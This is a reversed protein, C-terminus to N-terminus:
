MRHEEVRASIDSCRPTQKQRDARFSSLSRSSSCLTETMKINKSGTERSSQETVRLFTSRVSQAETEEETLHDYSYKFPWLFIQWMSKTHVHFSITCTSAGPVKARLEAQSSDSENWTDSCCVDCCHILMSRFAWCWSRWYIVVLHVVRIFM